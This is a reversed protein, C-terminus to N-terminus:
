KVATVIYYFKENSILVNTDQFTTTATTGILTYDSLNQTPNQSRYVKYSTAWPITEWNLDMSNTNQNTQLNTVKTFLLGQVPGLANLKGNGWITNPTPSTTETLADNYAFIHFLSDIKEFTLNPNVQLILAITGAVCPAAASTGSLSSYGLNTNTSFINTTASINPKQFFDRSPGRSTSTYFNGTTPEFAGASFIKKATGPTTLTVSASVDSSVFGATGSQVWSDFIGNTVSKPSVILDWSGSAVFPVTQTSDIVVFVQRDGNNVDSFNSNYVNIEGESVSIGSDIMPLFPGFLSGSPTKIFINMTDPENYWCNLIITRQNSNVTFTLTTDTTTQFNKQSHVSSNGSNGAALTFIIGNTTLADMALEAARTGDHSGSHGGLSMVISLPKNLNQAISILWNFADIETADTAKTKVYLITSQPAFGKYTLNDSGDGAAIGAVATGHGGFTQTSNGADIQQRTWLSGYSFGNPATGGNNTQDWLFLVRSTDPFGSRFSQHTFALGQSDVIGVLTGQGEYGMTQVSDANSGVFVTGNSLKLNGTAKDLLPFDKASLHIKEIGELRSLKALESLNLEATTFKGVQSQIKFGFKELQTKSYRNQFIVVSFSQSSESIGFNEEWTQSVPFKKLFNSGDFHIQDLFALFEVSFKEKERFSNIQNPVITQALLFQNPFLFFILILKLKQM